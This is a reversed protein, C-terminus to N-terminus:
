RYVEPSSRPRQSGAAAEAGLGHNVAGGGRGGDGPLPRLMRAHGETSDGRGGGGLLLRLMPELHGASGGRGGDGVPLRLLM